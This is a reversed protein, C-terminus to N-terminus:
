MELALSVANMRYHLCLHLFSFLILNFPCQFLSSVYKKLTQSGDICRYSLYWLFLM